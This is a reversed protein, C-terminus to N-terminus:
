SLARGFIGGCEKAFESFLTGALGNYFWLTCNEQNLFPTM